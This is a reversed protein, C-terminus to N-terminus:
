DEKGVMVTLLKDPHIRRSFADKIQEMTIANVTQNFKNLYDLPLDYFGIMSIYGVIDRNSDIRLPFGGTINRKAHTLEEDTPGNQIFDSLTQQLVQLAEDRKDNKTQLGMTFPGYERLPSFYSYSSYALGREDRVQKMIRSSFGSGGLIHNGVYLAFYDPDGRKMGPQGVLIHTQTSPHVEMVKKGDLLNKVEPIAAAKNGSPLGGVLTEALKRAEEKSLDGVIAVLTNKAVYYKKYFSVLDESKITKVSEVEGISQLAYPHDSYMKKFYTKSAISSPSQLQNKLSILVQKRIRELEKKEFKPKNIIAKLTSVSQSLLTKENLSRIAVNALDRSSSSEFQTGVDDFRENIQDTNWEGAGESLLNNTLSALGPKDSDRASGADFTVRVDVMPIQPANVYLVKAGNKTQWSIINLGNESIPAQQYVIRQSQWFFYGGAGLAVVVLLVISYKYSNKM